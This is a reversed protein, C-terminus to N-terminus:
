GLVVAPRQGAPMEIVNALVYRTADMAHDGQKIESDYSQVENIWQVCSSHVRIRPRKDGQVTFRGGMERIGEGRKTKNAEAPLGARNFADISKPEEHGCWFRGRRFRLDPEWRERMEKAAKILVENDARSQYFEELVMARGDNDFGIAYIAAPNTWGWDVGYEVRQLLQLNPYEEFVHVTSDFAYSGVGAAAFLGLVFRNYLGTGPVHSLKVRARYAETLHINADIDWRYVRSDKLKEKPDEFHTYTVSGPHDATMTLWLGTPYGKARGWASGRLRRNYVLWATEQKRQGAVGSGGILRFEDSWIWDVNPGEASEPKDMGIVWWRTGNWWEVLHEMKNYSKVAPCASLTSGLMEPIAEALLIRTVMAYTPETVLGLSGPYKFTWRLAEWLGCATKGGGTAAAVLRAWFKARDRHFAAQEPFPKYPIKLRQITQSM